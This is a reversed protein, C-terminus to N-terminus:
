YQATPKLQGGIQEATHSLEAIDKAWARLQAGISEGGPKYYFPTDSYAIRLDISRFDELDEIQVKPREGPAAKPLRSIRRPVYLELTATGGGGVALFPPVQLHTDLVSNPDIYSDDLSLKLLGTTQDMEIRRVRAYAHLTRESPNGLVYRLIIWDGEVSSGSPEIALNLPLRPPPKPQRSRQTKQTKQAKKTPRRPAKTM